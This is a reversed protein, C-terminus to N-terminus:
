CMANNYELRSTMGHTSGFTHPPPALTGRGRSCWLATAEKPISTHVGGRSFWLAVWGVNLSPDDDNSLTKSAPGHHSAKRVPISNRLFSCREGRYFLKIVLVNDFSQIQVWRVFSQPDASVHLLSIWFHAKQGQVWHIWLTNRCLRISRTILFQSTLPWIYKRRQLYDSNSGGVHQVIKRGKKLLLCFSPPVTSHPVTSHLVTSHLLTSNTPLFCKM